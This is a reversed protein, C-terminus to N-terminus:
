STLQVPGEREILVGQSCKDELFNAREMVASLVLITFLVSCRTISLLPEMLDAQTGIGLKARQINTCFFRLCLITSSMSM